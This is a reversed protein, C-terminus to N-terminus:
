GVHLLRKPKAQGVSGQYLNTAKPQLVERTMENQIFAVVILAELRALADPLLWRLLTASMATVPQPCSCLALAGPASSAVSM